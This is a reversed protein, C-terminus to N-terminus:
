VSGAPSGLLRRGDDYLTDLRGRLDDEGDVAPVATLLLTVLGHFDALSVEERMPIARGSGAEVEDLNGMNHYNRLPLCLGGARYGYAGFATAECSGGAMLRRQHPVGSRAAARSILNTLDRDFVTSADGVRIVPGSGVPAERSSRSAEVSLIRADSPLTGHRAAHIAGVFGVEEARTLLVAFHRLGARGRAHDLAALAAVAGALDDCASSAVTGPRERWAPFRWRAIDGLRARGSGGFRFVGTMTAQDHRTVTARQPSAGAIEVVAEDFYEPRVGGRFEYEAERGAIGTVVFAPHDMHAVAVVPARGTRGKQSILLNGGDDVELRLDPRRAVWSRVWAVVADERGSATPLDTVARLWRESASAAAM